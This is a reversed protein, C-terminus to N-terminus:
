ASKAQLAEAEAELKDEDLIERGDEMEMEMETEEMETKEMEMKEKEKEEVKAKRDRPKVDPVEFGLFKWGEVREPFELCYDRVRERTLEQFEVSFLTADSWPKLNKVDGMERKLGMLKRVDGADQQQKKQQYAEEAKRHDDWGQLKHLLLLSFPVVPVEDIWRTQTPTLFPLHMIGPILIDVKCEPGMYSERYWLIRYEATPDRPMKLYFNRSNTCLILDKIQAPTLPQKTSSSSEPSAAVPTSDPTNVRPPVDSIEALSADAVTDPEPAVIQSILVDVDKPCRSSGYLKAALSGFVACPVDHQRLIDVVTKAAEMVLKFHTDRSEAKAARPAKKAKAKSKGNAQTTPLMTTTMVGIRLEIVNDDNPIDDQQDQPQIAPQEDGPNVPHHTDAPKGNAQPQDSAKVPQRQRKPKTGQTQAQPQRDKPKIDRHQDTAGNTTAPTTTSTSATPPASAKPKAKAKGRSKATSKVAKPKAVQVPEM